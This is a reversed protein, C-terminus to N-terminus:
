STQLKSAIAKTFSFPVMMTGGRGRFVLFFASGSGASALPHDHSPEAAADVRLITSSVTGGADGHLCLSRGDPLRHQDRCVASLRRILQAPAAAPDFPALLDLARAVRPDCPDDWGANGTVHLGPPVDRVAPPGAAEVVFAADADAVLLNFGNYRTTELRRALAERAQGATGCRCALLPLEGRTPRAPDDGDTTPRNTVAAMVGRASVALWTGGAQEDRGALIAPEGPWVFPERAPRDYREDRNAAVTLSGDAGRICILLCM